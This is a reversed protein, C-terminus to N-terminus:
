HCTREPQYTVDAAVYDLSFDCSKIAAREFLLIICFSDGAEANVPSNSPRWWCDERQYRNWQKDKQLSGSAWASPPGAFSHFWFRINDSRESGVCRANW